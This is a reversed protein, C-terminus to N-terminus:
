EICGETPLYVSEDDPVAVSSLGDLGSFRIGSTNAYVSRWNRGNKDKCCNWEMGVRHTSNSITSGETIAGGVESVHWGEYKQPDSGSPAYGGAHSTSWGPSVKHNLDMNIIGVTCEFGHVGASELWIWDGSIILPKFSFYEGTPSLKALRGDFSIGSRTYSFDVSYSWESEKVWPEEDTYECGWVYMKIKATWALTGKGGHKLLSEKETDSLFGVLGVFAAQEPLNLVAGHRNKGLILNGLLDLRDIGNNGVFGYLNIGGQEEIPDRSPWRGTIPDYWRYGYYTVCPRFRQFEASKQAPEQPALPPMASSPGGTPPPKPRACPSGGTPPEQDPPEPCVQDAAAASVAATEPGPAAAVMM